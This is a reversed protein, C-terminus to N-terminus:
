RTATKADQYLWRNDVALSDDLHLFIDPTLQVEFWAHFIYSKTQHSGYVPQTACHYRTQRRLLLSRTRTAGHDIIKRQSPHDVNRSASEKKKGYTFNKIQLANSLLSASLEECGCSQRYGRVRSVSPASFLECTYAVLPTLSLTTM